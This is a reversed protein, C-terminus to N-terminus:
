GPDSTNEQLACWAESLLSVGGGLGRRQTKAAPGQHLDEESGPEQLSLICNFHKITIKM